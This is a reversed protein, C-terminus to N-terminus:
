EGATYMHNTQISAYTTMYEDHIITGVRCIWAKAKTSDAASLSPEDKIRLFSLAISSFLIKRTVGEQFTVSGTLANGDAWTVFWTMACAAFRPDGSGWYASSYNAIGTQFINLPLKAKLDAARLIPDIITGVLCIANVLVYSYM